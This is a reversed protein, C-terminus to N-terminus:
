SLPGALTQPFALVLVVSNDHDRYVFYLIFRCSDRSDNLIPAWRPPM